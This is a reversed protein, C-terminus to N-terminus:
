QGFGQGISFQFLWRKSGNHGNSIPEFTDFNYGYSLELMGLIPLFLRTGVGASRFLQTPNYTNFNDWTNSAEMFLYPAAQLQPSQVALWRLESVYKNLIRGGVASGNRRPGIVRAPYGRGYILDKGFNDGRNGQADFPSGGVVFRQFLV